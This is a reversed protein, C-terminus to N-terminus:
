NLRAPYKGSMISARTPSCISAAAYGNTFRVSREALRDIHPTEHLDAGFCGIDAWGLDDVLILVINPPRSTQEAAVCITAALALVSAALPSALNSM